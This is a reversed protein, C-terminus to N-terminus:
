QLPIHVKKYLYKYFDLSYYKDTEFILDTYMDISEKVERFVINRNVRYLSPNTEDTYFHFLKVDYYMMFDLWMLLTISDNNYLIQAYNDGFPHESEFTCYRMGMGDLKVKILTFREGMVINPVDMKKMDPAHQFNLLEGQDKDTIGVIILEDDSSVKMGSIKIFKFIPYFYSIVKNNLIGYRYYDEGKKRSVVWLINSFFTPEIRVDEVGNIIVSEITELNFYDRSCIRYDGNKLKECTWLVNSEPNIKLDLNTIDIIKKTAMVKGTYFDYIKINFDGGTKYGVCVYNDYEDIEMTVVKGEIKETLIFQDLTFTNLCFRNITSKSLTYICDNYFRPHLSYPEIGFKPITEGKWKANISSSFSNSPILIKNRFLTDMITIGEEYVYYLRRNFNMELAIEKYKLIGKPVPNAEVNLYEYDSNGSWRKCTQTITTSQGLKANNLSIINYGKLNKGACSIKLPSQLDMLFKIKYRITFDEGCEIIGNKNGGEKLIAVSEDDIEFLPIEIYGDWDKFFPLKKMYVMRKWLEDNGKDLQKKACYYLTKTYPPTTFYAFISTFWERDNKCSYGDIYGKEHLPDWDDSPIFSADEPFLNLREEYLEWYLDVDIGKSIFIDKQANGKEKAECIRKMKYDVVHGCEHNIVQKEAHSYKIKIEEPIGPKTEGAFSDDAFSLKGEYQECYIYLGGTNKIFLLLKKPLSLLHTATNFIDKKSNDVILTNGPYPSKGVWVYNTQKTPSVTFNGFMGFYISYSNLQDLKSKLAIDDVTGFSLFIIVVAVIILGIAKTLRKKM